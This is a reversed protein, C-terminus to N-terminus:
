QIAVSCQLGIAEISCLRVLRITPIVPLATTGVNCASIIHSIKNTTLQEVDSSDQFGGVYLGPLIQM